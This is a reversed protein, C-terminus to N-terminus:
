NFMYCPTLSRMKLPFDSYTDFTIKWVVANKILSLEDLADRVKFKGPSKCNEQSAQKTDWNLNLIQSCIFVHSFSISPRQYKLPVPTLKILLLVSSCCHDLCRPPSWQVIWLVLLICLRRGVAPRSSIPVSGFSSVSSWNFFIDSPVKLNIKSYFSDGAIYTFYKYM